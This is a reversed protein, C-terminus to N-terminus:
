NISVDNDETTTPDIPPNPEAKPNDPPPAKKQKVLPATISDSIDLRPFLRLAIMRISAFVPVGLIMGMIGGVQAGALLAFLVLLPHLGLGEGLVRPAVGYDLILNFVIVCSVALIACLMPATSTFYALLGAAIAVIFIGFYPVIYLFAGAVGVALGYQMHFVLGLVSFAVTCLIGFISCVIIQGRVYRGLIENIDVVIARVQPRYDPPLMLLFNRQINRMELMMWLTIIPIVVLAIFAVGVGSFTWGLIAQLRSAVTQPAKSQFEMVGSIVMSKIEEPLHLAKFHDQWHGLLQVAQKELEPANAALTRLQQGAAILLGVLALLFILFCLFVLGVAGRRSYGRDELRTLLPELAYAILGGVIFIPLVGRILFLLYAAIALVLAYGLYRLVIPDLSRSNM